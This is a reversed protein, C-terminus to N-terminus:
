DGRSRSSAFALLEPVARERRRHYVRVSSKLARWDCRRYCDLLRELEAETGPLVDPEVARMSGLRDSSNEVV